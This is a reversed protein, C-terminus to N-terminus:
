VEGLEVVPRQNIVTFDNSRLFNVLPYNTEKKSSKVTIKSADVHSIVGDEDAVTLRGSDLAAREEVGTGVLPAQPKICPVAQRQMNSGMMARNADDHALFPILTTAISFAQEPAVEIFDIEEKKMLGPSGKVRGETEDDLIVGSKDTNTLEPTDRSTSSLVSIRGKRLKLRVFEGTTRLTCM